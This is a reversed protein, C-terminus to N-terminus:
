LISDWIKNNDDVLRLNASIDMLKSKVPKIKADNGYAPLLFIETIYDVPLEPRCEELNKISELTDYNPMQIDSFVDDPQLVANPAEIKLPHNLQKIIEVKGTDILFSTICDLAVHEDDLIIVKLKNM